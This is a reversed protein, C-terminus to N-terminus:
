CKFLDRCLLKFRFGEKKLKECFELADKCPIIEKKLAEKLLGITGTKFIGLRNAIKRAKGDDICAIIEKNYYALTLVEIEGRGLSIKYKNLESPIEPSEVITYHKISHNISYWTVGKKLEFIVGKPILYSHQKTLEELIYPM